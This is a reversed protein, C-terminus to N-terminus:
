GILEGSIEKKKTGGDDRDNRRSDMQNNYRRRYHNPHPFAKLNRLVTRM